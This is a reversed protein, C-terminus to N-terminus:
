KAHTYNAQSVARRLLDPEVDPHRRELEQRALASVRDVESGIERRERPWAEDTLEYAEHTIAHAGELAAKLRSLSDGPRRQQLRWVESLRAQPGWELVVHLADNALSRPKRGTLREARRVLSYRRQIRELERRVRAPFRSWDHETM